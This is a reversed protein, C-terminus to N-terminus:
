PEPAEEASGPAEEPAGPSLVAVMPQLRKGDIFLMKVLWSDGYKARTADVFAPLQSVDGSPADLAMESLAAIARAKEDADSRKWNVGSYAGRDGLVGREAAKKEGLMNNWDTDIVNRACLAEAALARRLEEENPSAESALDNLLREDLSQSDLIVIRGDRRVHVCRKACGTRRYIGAELSERSGKRRTLAAQGIRFATAKEDSNGFEHKGRWPLGGKVNAWEILKDIAAERVDDGTSSRSRM